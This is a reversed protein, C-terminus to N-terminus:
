VLWNRFFQLHLTCSGGPLCYLLGRFCAAGYGTKIQLGLHLSLLAPHWNPLVRCICQLILDCNPLCLSVLVPGRHAVWFNVRCISLSITPRVVCQSWVCTLRTHCTDPRSEEQGVLFVPHNLMWGLIAPKRKIRFSFLLKGSETKRKM